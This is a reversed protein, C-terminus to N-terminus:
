AEFARKEKCYIVPFGYVKCHSKVRYRLVYMKEIPLLGWGGFLPRPAKKKGFGLLHVLYLFYLAM